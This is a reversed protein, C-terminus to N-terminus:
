LHNEEIYKELIYEIEKSPTRRDKICLQELEERIKKSITITLRTNEDKVPM